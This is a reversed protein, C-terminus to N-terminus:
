ASGNTMKNRLARVIGIARCIRGPIYVPLTRINHNFYWVPNIFGKMIEGNTKGKQRAVYVDAPGFRYQKRWYDIVGDAFSHIVGMRPEYYIPYEKKVRKIFETEDHGWSLSEDFFGISQFVEKRFAMNCGIVRDIYKGEEGTPYHPCLSSIVGNGPHVVKGAVVDERELIKSAAQLYGDIPVADDDIYIIKDANAQKVGENRAKSIGKDDRIIVEYDDFESDEFKSLCLIEDYDRTTVIIISLDTM